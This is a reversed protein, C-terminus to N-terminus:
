IKNLMILFSIVAKHNKGLHKFGDRLAREDGMDGRHRDFFQEIYHYALSPLTDFSKMKQLVKELQRYAVIPLEKGLAIVDEAEYMVKREETM